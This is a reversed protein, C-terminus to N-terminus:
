QMQERTWDIGRENWEGGFSEVIWKLVKEDWHYPYDHIIQEICYALSAKECRILGYMRRRLFVEEMAGRMGKYRNHEKMRRQLNRTTGVHWIKDGKIGFYLVYVYGPVTDDVKNHLV